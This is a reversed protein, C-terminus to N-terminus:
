APVVTVTIKASVGEMLRVDVPFSGLTKVADKLLIKKKDVDFGQEALAASIQASTVSGFLKGNEGVKIAIRIETGKLSAALAQLAKVNEAKHFAEATKKQQAENIGSATAVEALGKKLLFNKAYGDSVEIVDGKKGSGKVDAKLIVKM